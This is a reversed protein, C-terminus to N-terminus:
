YVSFYKYIYFIFDNLKIYIYFTTKHKKMNKKLLKMVSIAKLKLKKM